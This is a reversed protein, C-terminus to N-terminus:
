RLRLIKRKQLDKRGYGEMEEEPCVGDIGWVTQRYKQAYGNKCKLERKGSKLRQNRYILSVQTLKRACM